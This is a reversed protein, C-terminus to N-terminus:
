TMLVMFGGGWTERIPEVKDKLRGILLSTTQPVISNLINTFSFSISNLIHGSTSAKEISPATLNRSLHLKDAYFFPLGPFIFIAQTHLALNISFCHIMKHDTCFISLFSLQVPLVYKSVISFFCISIPKNTFLPKYHSLFDQILYLCALGGIQSWNELEQLIYLLTILKVIPSVFFFPYICNTWGSLYLSHWTNRLLSQKYKDGGTGQIKTKSRQHPM